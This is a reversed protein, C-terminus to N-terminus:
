ALAERAAAAAELAERTMKLRPRWCPCTPRREGGADVWGGMCPGLGDPFQDHLSKPTLWYFKCFVRCAAEVEEDLVASALTMWNALAQAMRNHCPRHKWRDSNSVNVLAANDCWRWAAPM